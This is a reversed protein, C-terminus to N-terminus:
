EVPRLHNFEPFMKQGKVLRDRERLQAHELANSMLTRHEKCLYM